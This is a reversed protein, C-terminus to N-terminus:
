APAIELVHFDVFFHPGQRHLGPGPLRELIGPGLGHVKHAPLPVSVTSRVFARLGLAKLQRRTQPLGIMVNHTIMARGDTQLHTALGQLFPDLLRRGDPGGGSWTPLRGDALAERTPFQPLNAVILDFRRGACPQWLHGQRVEARGAFGLSRLLGRTEDVAQAEVDVGLARRAGLALAQALVVGSGSGMEFVSDWPVPPVRRRLLRVQRMLAATYETPQFPTPTM